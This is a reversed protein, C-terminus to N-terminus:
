KGDAEGGSTEETPVGNECRGEEAWHWKDSVGRATAGAQGVVMRTGNLGPIAGFHLDAEKEGHNQVTTPLWTQHHSGKMEPNRFELGKTESYLGVEVGM